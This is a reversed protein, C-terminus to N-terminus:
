AGITPFKAHRRRWFGLVFELAQINQPLVIDEVGHGLREKIIEGFKGGLLEQLAAAANPDAKSPEPLDILLRNMRLFM